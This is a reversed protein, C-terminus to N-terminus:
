EILRKGLCIPFRGNNGSFLYRFVFADFGYKYLHQMIDESPHVILLQKTGRRKARSILENILSKAMGQGRMDPKVYFYPIYWQKGLLPSDLPMELWTIFGVELGTKDSAILGVIKDANVSYYKVCEKKIFHEIIYQMQENDALAYKLQNQSHLSLKKNDVRKFIIHSYNGYEDKKSIDEHKPGYRFFCFCNSDWFGHAELTPNSSGQFNLIGQNQAECFAYYLLSSGIGQRRYEKLVMITIIFWDKGFPAILINKEDIVLYGLIANNNIAVYYIFENKKEQWSPTDKWFTDSIYKIQDLNAKQITYNM